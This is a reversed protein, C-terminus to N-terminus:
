AEEEDTFNLMGDFLDKDKQTTALADDEPAIIADKKKPLIRRYTNYIAQPLACLEVKDSVDDFSGEWPDESPSFVYVKIPQPIDMDYIIDVLEDIAEERYIVLMQKKGDDFYRFIGKYTKQGGFTNQETYLDEKICLMDTALNVLKRMNQMSRNRGVFGTRYYRLNNKTLGAVEEGKANTYGQIVRRNREYTVEECINNENNTVLICQRHGGDEANLQMTAHLTTGSGAFFDLIIGKKNAILNIFLKILEIPKAYSFAKSNFITKIDNAADANLIGSILNKYPVSKEIANGENDVNLYIKYKVAWGNKKKNTPVIEIFKNKIGWEVKEKSWKWTWGDNVFSLRGNPFIMSGDPAEIGYNLGDSYQISGRDLSDYYFPGRIKEFEDTYRYRKIDFANKNYSFINKANQPDLCYVLIYETIIAIGNADAAGTKKQWILNTIFRDAGFIEDCLLKLQAQENDDISIFIVGRDSLLKKAIKLRRSMFSLWKSHRYSDEKDVYSDNYIFDKNGTNYPPDIYIVDIKGEHTYALIALAELNDGEILIHNPADNDESIIVREPVETLIPLEERLREEVDEPKDEWVLGYTKNERLLGLLDSREKDTLGELTNIRKILNARDNSNM